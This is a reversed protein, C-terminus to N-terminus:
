EYQIYPQLRTQLTTPSGEDSDGVQGPALQEPAGEKTDECCHHKCVYTVEYNHICFFPPVATILM